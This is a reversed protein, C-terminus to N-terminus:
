ADRGGKRSSWGWRSVIAWGYDWALSIGIVLFTWAFVQDSELYVRARDMEAGIGWRPYSLVEAAILVKWTLGMGAAVGATLYPRIAPLYLSTLRRRRSIEFVTAMEVLNRDLNRVGESVNQAVIPFAVLFIVFIAVGNSKFWILALVIFSISPASRMIVLLPGLLADWVSRSGILLGVTVGSLCALAFGVFGRSISAGLHRWFAPGNMLRGVATATAGPGPLLLPADLRIAVLHWILVLTGLAALSLGFRKGQRITSDKM